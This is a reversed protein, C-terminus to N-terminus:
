EEITKFLGFTHIKESHCDFTQHSHLQSNIWETDCCEGDSLGIMADENAFSYENKWSSRNM